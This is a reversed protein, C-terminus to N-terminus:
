ASAVTWSTLTVSSSAGSITKITTDAMSVPILTTTTDMILLMGKKFADEADAKTVQKTYKEDYYLKNDAAKGYVVYKRINKDKVDNYITKM